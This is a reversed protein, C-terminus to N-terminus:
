RRGPATAFRQSPRRPVSPTLAPASPRRARQTPVQPAVARGIRGWAYQVARSAAGISAVAFVTAVQLDLGIFRITEMWGMTM